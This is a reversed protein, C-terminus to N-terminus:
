AALVVGLVCRLLGEELEQLCIPSADDVDLRPERGDCAVDAALDM